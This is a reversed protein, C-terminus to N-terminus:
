HWDIVFKSWYCINTYIQKIKFLSVHLSCCGPIFSFDAGSIWLYIIIIGYLYLIMNGLKTYAWKYKNCM